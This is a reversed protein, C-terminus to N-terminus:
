NVHHETLVGDAYGFRRERDRQDVVFLPVAGGDEAPAIGVYYATAIVMVWEEPRELTFGVPVTVDDPLQRESARRAHPRAIHPCLTLAAEACAEHMPPDSYHGTKASVPGGLFAAPGGLPLGCLSCRHLSAMRLAKEGNLVVFDPTGDPRENVVPIPLGRRPDRPREALGPPLDPLTPNPM